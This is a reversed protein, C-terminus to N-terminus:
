NRPAVIEDLRAVMVPGTPDPQHRMILTVQVSGGGVNQFILGGNPANYFDPRVMVPSIHNALVRAITGDQRLQILQTVTQGDGNIDNTDVVYQMPPLLGLSLDQNLAVTNGNLDAVRRFQLNTVPAAGIPGFAGGGADTNLSTNQSMRLNQVISQMALRAEQKLMISSDTTKVTRVMAFSISYLMALIITLAAMAMSLELLTFGGNRRMNKRELTM